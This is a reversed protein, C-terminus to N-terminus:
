SFTCDATSSDKGTNHMANRKYYTIIFHSLLLSKNKKKWSKTYVLGEKMALIGCKYNKYYYSHYIKEPTM